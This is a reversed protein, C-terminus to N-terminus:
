RGACECHHFCNVFSHVLPNEYKEIQTNCCFVFDSMHSVQKGYNNALQGFDINKKDSPFYVYLSKLKPNKLVPLLDEPQHKHIVTFIFDQLAPATKLNDLRKLGKLNMLRVRRLKKLKKFSPLEETNIMSELHLNQLGTMQSIFSIDSVGKVMWLELYKLNPLKSLATFDKIGGLKIDLSWLKKLGKLFNLDPLSVSRLVLTQLHQLSAIVEIGKCPGEIHLERLQKFRAIFDVPLPTKSERTEISL